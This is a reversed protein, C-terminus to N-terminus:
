DQSGDSPAVCAAEQLDGGREDGRDKGPASMASLYGTRKKLRCLGEALISAVEEFRERETMEEPDRMERM